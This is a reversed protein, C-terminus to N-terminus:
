VYDDELLSEKYNDYDEDCTCSGNCSACNQVIGYNCEDLIACDDVADGCYECLEVEDNM